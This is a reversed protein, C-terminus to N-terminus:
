QASEKPYSALGAAVHEANCIAARQKALDHLICRITAGLGTYRCQCLPQM